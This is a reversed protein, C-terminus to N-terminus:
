KSTGKLKKDLKHILKAIEAFKADETRAVTVICRNLNVRSWAVDKSVTELRDLIWVCANCSLDEVYFDIRKGDASLAKLNEVLDLSQFDRALLKSDVPKLPGDKSIEYFESQGNKLLFDYVTECGDCCFNVSRIGARDSQVPTQCHMCRYASKSAESTIGAHTTITM